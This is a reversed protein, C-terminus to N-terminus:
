SAQRCVPKSPATQYDGHPGDSPVVMPYGEPLMMIRSSLGYVEKLAHATLVQEPRDDSYTQGERLLVLRDGHRAALNLDHAVALIAFGRERSLRKLLGFVQQQHSPDLASTCEDLLLVVPGPSDWVQALVRALQVRQQEGGSLGPVRRYRLHRIDLRQLLDELIPASRESPEPPRGLKLVEAVTLPFNVDVRQPMVARHRALDAPLWDALARGAMAVQGSAVAREGALASLLTSKGAGNPGLLIVLEGEAVQLSVDRVVAHTGLKVSVESATLSM